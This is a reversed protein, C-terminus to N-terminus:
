EREERAAEERREAILKIRGGPASYKAANTILNTFVQALRTLDANVTLQSEPLVVDLTHRMQEVLPRCSEIASNM